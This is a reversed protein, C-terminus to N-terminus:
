QVIVMGVIFIALRGVLSGRVKVDPDSNGKGEEDKLRRVEAGQASIAEEAAAIEQESPMPVAGKSGIKVVTGDELTYQHCKAAQGVLEGAFALGTGWQTWGCHKQSGDLWAVSASPVSCADLTIARM